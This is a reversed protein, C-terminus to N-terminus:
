NQHVATENKVSLIKANIPLVPLFSFDSHHLLAQAQILFKM